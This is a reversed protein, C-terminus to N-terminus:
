GGRNSRTAGHGGWIKPLSSLVSGDRDLQPEPNASALPQAVGPFNSFLNNFSRNELYIVVVNKIKNKLPKNLAALPNSAIPKAAHSAPLALGAGIAALGGLLRRRSPDNPTSSKSKKSM